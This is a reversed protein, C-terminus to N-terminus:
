HRHTSYFEEAAATMEAYFYSIGYKKHINVLKRHFKEYIDCLDTKCYFVRCGLPRTERVTCRDSIQWRCHLPGNKPPIEGSLLLALEGTSVYLRHGATEFLCCRGCADCQPNCADIERQAAVLTEQIEALFKQPSEGNLAASAATVIDKPQRDNM